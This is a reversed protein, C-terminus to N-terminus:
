NFESYKWRKKWQSGQSITSM